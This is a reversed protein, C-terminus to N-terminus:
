LGTAITLVSHSASFDMKMSLFYQVQPQYLFFEEGWFSVLEYTCVFYSQSAHHNSKILIKIVTFSM